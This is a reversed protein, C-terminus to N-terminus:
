KFEGKDYRRWFEAAPWAHNGDIGITKLNKRDRLVDLGRTIHKPTLRIDELPMGQLPALDTIDTTDIRLTTLPMGKFNALGADGIQTNDLYLCTLIKCDKLHALGADSVRTAGLDLYILNKCDKLHALGADSLKTSRLILQTLAKSDKFHILGADSVRTAGLGLLRLSKCDRLYALGADGLKTSWLIVQTLAKCDQFHALGADGIQTDSLSLETLNKCDKFHILGADTVQTGSLGLGTLNKCDKFYVMGADNVKTNNLSLHRLDALNMGKLPTLDALLGNPAGTWTGRCEFVRLASWVRIPAIDTVKDTVIKFETVVGGEIKHEMKGDFGPNRRMLEKRVEEVQQAAHLAAIRQVDADTFPAVASLARPKLDGVIAVRFGVASDWAKDPEGGGRNAPRARLADTHWGGGCLSRRNGVQGPQWEECWEWVNGLMDHLGFPNAEKLGVHQPQRKRDAPLNDSTWAVPDLATVLDSAGYLKTTGARAAFERQALGPLVYRRGEKASLWDCYARADNWSVHVVPQQDSLTWPGPTRWIHEPRRVWKGEFDGWGGDGSKEGDTKYQTEEVFKRFDAVTVEYAGLYFPQEIVARSRPAETRFEALMWDLLGRRKGQAILATIEEDSSGMDFEGPPILRFKMGVSNTFEVPVRLHKAWVEQHEKAKAADFPAVAPPPADAPWGDWGAKAKAQPDSGSKNADSTGSRGWFLHTVGAFEWVALAIVPLLVAAALAVWKRRGSRQPTRRPIRSYDKLRANAKLQAECDALVDAV